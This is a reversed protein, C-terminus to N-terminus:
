PASPGVAVKRQKGRPPAPPVEAQPGEPIPEGSARGRKQPEVPAKRSRKKPTSLDGPHSHTCLAALAHLLADSLDDKKKSSLFLQKYDEGIAPAQLLKRALVVALRKRQSYSGGLAMDGSVESFSCLDPFSLKASASQFVVSCSPRLCRLAAYLASSIAKMKATMQMEIVCLDVTEMLAQQGVVFQVVNECLTHFSTAKKGFSVLRLEQLLISGECLGQHLCSLSASLDRRSSELLCYSCNVLGVDISLVKM